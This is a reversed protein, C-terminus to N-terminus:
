PIDESKEVYIRIKHFLWTEFAVIDVPFDQQTKTHPSTMM